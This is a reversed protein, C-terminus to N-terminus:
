GSNGTSSRHMILGSTLMVFPGSFASPQGNPNIELFEPTKQENKAFSLAKV